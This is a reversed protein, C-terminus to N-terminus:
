STLAQSSVEQLAALLAQQHPHLQDRLTTQKRAWRELAAPIPRGRTHTTRYQHYHRQWTFAWPPNWWPDLTTLEQLTRASLRDSRAKRRQQLLWAGLAFGAHRTPTPVALHGHEAAYSRAHPLGESPPYRRAPTIAPPTTAPEAGLRTLLQQQLPHLSDWLRTQTAIWRREAGTLHHHAAAALAQHYARQWALPWPPNWHADLTNLAALRDAEIRGRAARHRQRMLWGGLPFGRHDGDTPVALHGHEGAYSRAHELGHDTPAQRLAAAVARATDATIQIDALLSQQEPRLVDHRACQRGLWAAVEDAEDRRDAGPRGQPAPESPPPLRGARWLARAQQYRRQWSYHWPPNWWPDLAALVQGRPWVGTGSRAHQSGQMRQSSLWRGLPYGHHVYDFAVSLHGHEAAFCRASAVGADPMKEATDGVQGDPVATPAQEDGEEMLGIAALLRRQGPHLSQPVARQRSLWGALAADGGPPGADAPLQQGGEVLRRLRAYSRQWALPWPPNWWPDVADLALSRKTAGPARRARSRNGALWAGLPYGRYLGSKKSVALHGHEAAYARAHELGEEFRAQLNDRRPRAARAAEATIGIDALLRRQEPHLSDYHSCQLYLWEGTLLDTGAFGGAADSPGHVAVHDRARYYSRQWQTPWPVNWWVDLAELAEVREPPLAWARSRINHLWEGLRFSEAVTDKQLALNGHQQWYGRAHSLGTAFVEDSLRSQGRRRKGEVPRGAARTAEGLVDAAARPRYAPAVLWMEEEGARGGRRERVCQQAWTVLPGSTQMGLVEALWPRRLCRAVAGPPSPLDALRFPVHGGAEGVVLRRFGDDALLGALAVTEPYTVAERAVVQWTEWGVATDWLARLRAPWLQERPWMRQWWSATVAEAVEFAGVGVMGLRLLKQHRQQAQVWLEGGPLAVVCGATGPVQMLWVRHVGCVRQGPRLYLRVSELRGTRRVACQPCAPGWPRVMEPTHHFQAAPGTAARRRPEERAWAPLAKRLHEPAVRCLVAVRDRAEQDLYVESDPRARGMVNSLGGADAVAPLLDKLEMGYRAALRALFSQTMEGHVPAVRWVGAALVLLSGEARESGARGDASMVRWPCAGTVAGRGAQMVRGAAVGLAHGRPSGGGLGIVWSPGPRGHRCRQAGGRPVTDTRNPTPHPTPSPPPVPAPSPTTPCTHPRVLRRVRRTSRFNQPTQGRTRTVQRGTLPALPTDVSRSVTLHKQRKTSM